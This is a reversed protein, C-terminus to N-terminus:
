RLGPGRRFARDCLAHRHHSLRAPVERPIGHHSPEDAAVARASKRGMTERRILRQRASDGVLLEVAAGGLGYEASEDVEERVPAKGLRCGHQSRAHRGEATGPERARLDARELVNGAM